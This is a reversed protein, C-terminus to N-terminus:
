RRACLRRGPDGQSFYNNKAVMGGLNTGDVDRTGSSLSLLINNSFKAGPKPTASMAVQTNNDVLTNNYILMGDFSSEPM